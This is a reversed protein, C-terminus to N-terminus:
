EALDQALRFGVDNFRDDAPSRVRNASRVGGPGSGWSGGRLVRQACNGGNAEVWASGDAPAGKYDQHYCDEVWEWVNGATDHAGFANAPFSGVPATQKMDWQSGCGGCNAWVKGAQGIDKGWWYPTTTGARAAYEWEAESPLRYDKGTKVSLWATYAVADDWSVHIVPRDARGWGSDSPLARGTAAAFQDYQAFTVEYKGIAFARGFTVPHQPGEDSDRGPENKASGMLFSGAPVQVTEPAGVPYLGIRTLLGRAAIGPPYGKDTAWWLFGGGGVVLITLALSAALALQRYRALERRPRNGAIWREDFLRRYLRNRVVLAGEANRKVLGSLKLEAHTLTTRDLEHGGALIRQYLTLAALSDSLRNAVFRLIQQFHAEGGARDLRGYHQEVHRDVDAVTTAGAEALDICMRVTLYPHGGTWYLVRDLLRNGVEPDGSLSRAIPTLDEAARDFDDLELTQGINYPTTRRDKILENPTAVGVLCFGIREYVPELVRENYMGRIATFLDDTFSLKLTSDIEDLFLVIPGAIGAAVPERFFRLLRQNFTEDAHEGWWAGLDLPLGLSRAIQGILGLYYAEAGLSGGLSSALDIIVTRVGRAQLEAATRVMLSSKGMQRSTLINVYEGALLLELLRQDQPRRVYVHRRPNLTGGAQLRLRDQPSM